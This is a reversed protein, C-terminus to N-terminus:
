EAAVVTLTNVTSVDIAPSITCDAHNSAYTCTYWSGGSVVQVEVNSPEGAGSTPNIDFSVKEVTDPNSDNLTYDVNTIDYGTIAESGVGAGTEPVVNAAAFAYFLGILTLGGIVAALLRFSRTFM